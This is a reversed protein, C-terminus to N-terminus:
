RTEVFPSEISPRQPQLAKGFNMQSLWLKGTFLVAIRERWTLAWRTVTIQEDSFAPLPLYPPQEKAWVKNRQPFEIPKM